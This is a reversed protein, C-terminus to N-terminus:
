GKQHLHFLQFVLNYFNQLTKAIFYVCVCTYVCVTEIFFVAAIIHIVFGILIINGYSVDLSSKDLSRWDLSSEAM